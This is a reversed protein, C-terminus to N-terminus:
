EFKRDIACQGALNVWEFLQKMQETFDSTDATYATGQLMGLAQECNGYRLASLVGNKLFNFQRTNM